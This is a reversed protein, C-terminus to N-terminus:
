ADEGLVGQKMFLVRPNIQTAALDNNHTVVLFTTGQQNYHRFIALIEQETEEDLDGTPEDALIVEPQNIFARAIAVRRQQGGSLQAPFANAKDALGVLELMKLAMGRNITSNGAFTIPLLVNELVTLAPILSAFQFIFGIKSNRMISLADDSQHWNEVGDVLVEGSDPATLGGILSLLTTKGSGSHGLIVVFEGKRVALDVNDVAIVPNSDAIYRKNLRRCSIIESMM